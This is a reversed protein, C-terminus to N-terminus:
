SSVPPRSVGAVTAAPFWGGGAAALVAHALSAWVPWPPVGVGQAARVLADCSGVRLSCVEGDYVAVVLAGPHRSAVRVARGPAASAEHLVDGARAWGAPAPLAVRVHEDVFDVGREPWRLAVRVREVRSVVATTTVHATLAM